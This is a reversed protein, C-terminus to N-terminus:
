DDRSSAKTQAMSINAMVSIIQQILLKKLLTIELLQIKTYKSMITTFLAKKAFEFGYILELAFNVSLFLCFCM